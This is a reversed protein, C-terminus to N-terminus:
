RPSASSCPFRAAPLSARLCTVASRTTGLPHAWNVFAPTLRAMLDIKDAGGPFLVGSLLVALCMGGALLAGLIFELNRFRAFRTNAAKTTM